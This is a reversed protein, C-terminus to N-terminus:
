VEGGVTRNMGTRRTLLFRAVAAQTLYAAANGIACGVLGYLPILVLYLIMGVPLASLSTIASSKLDGLGNNVANDVQASAALVGGILLIWLASTGAVFEGGLFLTLLAYGGGFLLVALGVSAAMMSGWWRRHRKAGHLAVDRVILPAVATPMTGALGSLTAVAAYIGVATPDSFAALMVRDLQTGVTAGFAVGLGPISFLLMKRLLGPQMGNAAVERRSQRSASLAQVVWHVLPRVTIVLMGTQLDLLGMLELVFLLVISSLAGVLEGGLATRHRGVGQLGERLLGSRMQTVCMVVLGAALLPDISRALWPFVTWAALASVALELLLLPRTSVVFQSLSVRWQPRSLIIRASSVLGLSLILALLSAITQAISLVGRDHAGIWKAILIAALGQLGATAGSLLVLHVPTSRLWGVKM